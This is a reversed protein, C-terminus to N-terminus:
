VGYGSSHSADREEQQEAKQQRERLHRVGRRTFRFGRQRCAATRVALVLARHVHRELDLTLISPM